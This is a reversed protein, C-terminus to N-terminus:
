FLSVFAQLIGIALGLTLILKVLGIANGTEDDIEYDEV